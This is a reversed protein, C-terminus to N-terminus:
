AKRQLRNLRQAVLYLLESPKTVGELVIIDAGDALSLIRHLADDTLSSVVLLDFARSRLVIEAVQPPASAVDYGSHKLPRV